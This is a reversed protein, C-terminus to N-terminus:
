RPSKKDNAAAIISIVEKTVENPIPFTLNYQVIKWGTARRLLVGSGRVDGYKENKLKEDFWAVDKKPSLYIHRENPKYTWGTGKNFYPKAFDQFARFSWRESADTGLFISDSDMAGFYIKGDAKSAALHWKDLFSNLEDVLQQNGKDRSGRTIGLGTNIKLTKLTTQAPAYGHSLFVLLIGLLSLQSLRNCIFM